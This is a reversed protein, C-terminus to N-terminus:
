KEVTTAQTIRNGNMLVTSAIFTGYDAQKILKQTFELLDKSTYTKLVKNAIIKRILWNDSLCIAIIKGIRKGNNAVSQYQASIQEQFDDSSMAKEDVEMKIFENSLEIMRYATMPLTEFFFTKGFIKLGVEFGKNLLLNIEQQEAQKM